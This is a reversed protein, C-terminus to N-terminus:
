KEALLKVKALIKDAGKAVLAKAVALGIENADNIKGCKEAHIIKEGNLDAVLARLKLKHKKIEAFAAIPLRCDGGLAFVVAREATIAAFTDSDNIEEILERWPSNEAIEIGIAGQGCAPLMENPEIFDRIQNQLNLRNLGAAALIIADYKDDALKKLRTNINGRLNEIRWEHCLAKLQAKRRLSSTGILSNAPLQSLSQYHKSVFVDRADDRPLVAALILREPLIAPLDKVSHVAIDAKNKLLAQELEKVFLGKGGIEALNIDLRKDASTLLPITEIKLEPNKALLATKVLETQALALPSKRTVIRLSKM